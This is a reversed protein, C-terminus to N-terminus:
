KWLVFVSFFENDYNIRIMEGFRDVVAKVSELGIGGSDDRKTSIIKDEDLLVEGDFTNRVMLMLQEGKPKLVLKIQRNRTESPELKLCAEVANELLNGLVICMEYNPVNYGQPINISVNFEINLEKTKGAYDSVLSNIVVNGCFNPLEKNEFQEHLGSLYTKSKELDGSVLMDLATRLHFKYDHRMVRLADFQENIKQYHDRGTAIIDRSFDAAYKQKMREHTNIIAFLLIVFSWMVFFMVALAMILNPQYIPHLYELLFWSAAASLLYLIWEKARGFAFVKKFLKKGFKIVLIIYIFYILFTIIILMLYNIKEGYPIFIDAFTIGLLRLFSITTMLMFFAFLRQFLMEKFLLVVLPLYLLSLFIKIKESLDFYGNFILPIIILGNAATMIVFSSIVFFLSKKRTLCFMLVFVSTFVSFFPVIILAAEKM